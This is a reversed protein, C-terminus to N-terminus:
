GYTCRPHHRWVLCGGDLKQRVSFPPALWGDTPGGIMQGHSSAATILRVAKVNGNSQAVEAHGAAVMAWALAGLVCRIHMGNANVLETKVALASFLLSAKRDM